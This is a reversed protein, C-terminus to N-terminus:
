LTGGSIYKTLQDTIDEVSEVSYSRFGNNINEVFYGNNDKFICINADEEMVSETIIPLKNRSGLLTATLCREQIALSEKFSTVPKFNNDYLLQDPTLIRKGIAMELVNTPNFLLQNKFFSKKYEFVKYGICDEYLFIPDEVKCMGSYQDQILVAGMDSNESIAYNIGNENYYVIAYAKNSDAMSEVFLRVDKTKCDYVTPISMGKIISNYSENIDFILNNDNNEVIQMKLKSLTFLLQHFNNNTLRIYNYKNLAIIAKEKEVQKARYEEMNRTNPNDGGDKVDFALNYSPIYLDTIWFHQKGNYTYEIVPGPSEIESVRFGMTKDLFELLTKEYTGVYKASGGKSFKYTGSIGRGELMKNQFNPDDLLNEKGYIKIMNEKAFKAADSKCSLGCYREYRNTEENWKTENKCGYPNTCYGTSKKNVLNFVLRSSTYESPIMDEHEEDIHDVLSIRDMKKECFPCSYKRSNSTELIFEEEVFFLNNQM